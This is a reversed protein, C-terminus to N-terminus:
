RLAEPFLASLARAICRVYDVPKAKPVGEAYLRQSRIYEVTKPHLPLESESPLPAGEAFFEPHSRLYKKVASSSYSHGPHPLARAPRNRFVEPVPTMDDPSRPSILWEEIIGPKLAMKPDPKAPIHDGGIIAYFKSDPCRARISKAVREFSALGYSKRNVLIHPDDAYLEGLHELRSAQSTRNPKKLSVDAGPMILVHDLAAAAIAKRMTEDHGIHIPDFSGQYFGIKLGPKCVLSEFPIALAEPCLLAWPLV